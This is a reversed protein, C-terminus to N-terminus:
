LSIGMSHEWIAPTPPDTLLIVYTSQNNIIYEQVNKTCLGSIIKKRCHSIHDQWKLREDIFIGLFKVSKAKEIQNGDITITDPITCDPSKRFTVYNSKAANVSLKNSKFWDSIIDLEDNITSYLRNMNTDSVYLTTDDAYMITKARTINSPLDNVYIIFLLPGLVSGQPVGCGVFQARSLAGRYQVFHQRDVLYSTFWAGTIGRVGYHQLKDILIKHDITDFAKSLDLFIGM